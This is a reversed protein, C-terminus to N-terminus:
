KHELLVPIEKEEDKRVIKLTVFSEPDSFFIADQLQNLGRIQEGQFTIVQDGALLGSKEAASGSEIKTVVIRKSFDVPSVRETFSARIEPHIVTQNLRLQAVIRHLAKAPVIYSSDIEPLTAVSIGLFRGQSDFVPSGGEAPGSAIGIRTYTFPFVIDGFSSERGGVLGIKPTASFDLPSTIAYAISGIAPPKSDNELDVYRIDQPPKALRLLSINSIPDSGIPIALLQAGDKEVRLRPGDDTPVANTLVTGNEDIFFGSLVKLSVQEEGNENLSRTAVKVKVVTDKHKQYLSVLRKEFIGIDDIPSAELIALAISAAITLILRATM